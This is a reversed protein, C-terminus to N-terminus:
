GCIAMGGGFVGVCVGEAEALVGLKRPNRRASGTVLFDGLGMIRKDGAFPMGFVLTSGGFGTASDTRHISIIRM